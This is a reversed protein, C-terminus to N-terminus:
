LELELGVFVCPIRMSGEHNFFLLIYWLVIWCCDCLLEYTEEREDDDDLEYRTPLQSLWPMVCGFICLLLRPLEGMCCEVGGLKIPPIPIWANCFPFLWMMVVAGWNLPCIGFGFVLWIICHPLILEVFWELKWSVPLGRALPSEGITKCFSAFVVLELAM